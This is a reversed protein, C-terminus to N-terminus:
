DVTYCYEAEIFPDVDVAPTDDVFWSHCPRCSLM